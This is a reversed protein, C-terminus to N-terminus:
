HDLRAPVRYGPEVRRDISCVSWSRLIDGMCSLLIIDPINQSWKLELYQNCYVAAGKHWCSLAFVSIGPAGYVKWHKRIDSNAVLHCRKKNKTFSNIIKAIDGHSISVTLTRFLILALCSSFIILPPLNKEDHVFDQSFPHFTSVNIGERKGTVAIEAKQKDLFPRLAM